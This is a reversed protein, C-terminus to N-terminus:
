KTSPEAVGRIVVLEDCARDKLMEQVAGTHCMPPADATVRGPPYDTGLFTKKSLLVEDPGTFELSLRDMKPGTCLDGSLLGTHTTEGIFETSSRIENFMWIWDGGGNTTLANQCTDRDKCAVAYVLHGWRDNGVNKLVFFKTGNEGLVSAGENACSKKNVTMHAVSYIGIQADSLSASPLAPNAQAVPGCASVFLPVVAMSFPNLTMM